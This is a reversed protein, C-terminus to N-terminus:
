CAGVAKRVAEALMNGGSAELSVRKSVLNISTGASAGPDIALITLPVGCLIARLCADGRAREEQTIIMNAGESRAAVLSEERGDAFGVIEMDDETAILDTIMRRLLPSEIALHIRVTSM